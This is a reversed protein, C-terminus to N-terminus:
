SIVVNPAGPTSEHATGDIVVQGTIPPLASSLAITQAGTTLGVFDIVDDGPNTNAQDIAWRLTGVNSTNTDATSTVHFTTTAQAAAPALALIAMLAIATIWGHRPRAPWVM